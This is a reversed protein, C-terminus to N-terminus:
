NIPFPFVPCLAAENLVARVPVVILDDDNRFRKKLDTILYSRFDIKMFM